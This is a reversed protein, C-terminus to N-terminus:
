GGFEAWMDVTHLMFEPCSKEGLSVWDSKHCALCREIVCLFTSLVHQLQM